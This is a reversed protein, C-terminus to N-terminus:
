VFYTYLLTSVKEGRFTEFPNDNRYVSGWPTTQVVAIAHARSGGGVHLAHQFFFASVEIHEARQDAVRKGFGHLGASNCPFPPPSKFINAQTPYLEGNDRPLEFIKVCCGVACM